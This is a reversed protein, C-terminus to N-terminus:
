FGWHNKAPLGNLFSYPTLSFLRKCKGGSWAPDQSGTAIPITGIISYGTM